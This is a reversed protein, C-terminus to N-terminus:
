EFEPERPICPTKKQESAGEPKIRAGKLTLRKRETQQLDYREFM